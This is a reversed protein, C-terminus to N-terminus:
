SKPFWWIHWIYIHWIYAMYLGYTHWIYAMYIGYLASEHLNESSQGVDTVLGTASSEGFVGDFAFEKPESPSTDAEAFVDALSAGCSVSRVSKKVTSLHLYYIITCVEVLKQCTEVM